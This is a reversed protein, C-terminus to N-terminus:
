GGLTVPVDMSAGKRRVAVTVRDGPASERLVVVLDSADAVTRGAVATVVDGKRLGARAAPSDETVESIQAGGAVRLLAAAAPTLDTARVGLWARPMSAGDRLAQASAIAGAAPAAVGFAAGDVNGVAVGVPRGELDVVLGGVADDPVPRDLELSDHLVLEGVTTRMGAVRVTAPVSTAAPTRGSGAVAGPAGLVAVGAGSRSSSAAAGLPTGSTVGADLVATGTAPDEGVIRASRGVGDRGTVVVAGAGAVLPAATLVSGHEDMWIGSGAVWQGDREVRVSPLSPGLEAALRETPMPAFVAAVSTVSRVPTPTVTRRATVRTPGALWM